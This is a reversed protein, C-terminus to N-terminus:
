LDQVGKSERMEDDKSAREAEVDTSGPYKDRLLRRARTISEAPTTLNMFTQQQTPTLVLGQSEWFALLLLKDSSRTKPYQILIKEVKNHVKMARWGESKSILNRRTNNAQEKRTAWRVNGPEYGKHNDIRDLSYAASPREGVDAVFNEFNEWRECVKIGRGGYDAYNKGNPNSCRYRM